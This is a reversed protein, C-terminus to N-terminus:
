DIMFHIKKMCDVIIFNNSTIFAKPLFYNSVTLSELKLNSCSQCSILFHPPSPLPTQSTYLGASVFKAFYKSFKIRWLNSWWKHLLKNEHDFIIIQLYFSSLRKQPILKLAKKRLMLKTLIDPSWTQFGSFSM